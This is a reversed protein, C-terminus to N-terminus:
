EEIFKITIDRTMKVVRLIYITGGQRDEKKLFLAQSMMNGLDVRVGESKWRDENFEWAGLTPVEVRLRRFDGTMRYFLLEIEQGYPVEEYVKSVEYLDCNEVKFKKIAPNLFLTYTAEIYEADDIFSYNEPIIIKQNGISDDKSYTVLVHDLDYSELKEFVMARSVGPILDVYGDGIYCFDGELNQNPMMEKGKIIDLGTQVDVEPKLRLFKRAQTPVYPDQDYIKGDNGGIVATEGSIKYIKDMWDFYPIDLNTGPIRANIKAQCVAEDFRIILTPIDLALVKTWDSITYTRKWPTNKNSVYTSPIVEGSPTCFVACKGEDTTSYASYGPNCTVTIEVYDHPTRVTVVQIPNTKACNSNTVWIFSETRDDYTKYRCELKVQATYFDHTKSRLIWKNSLEPDNGKNCDSLSVYDVGHHEVIADLAYTVNPSYIEPLLEWNDGGPIPKNAEGTIDDRLCIWTKNEGEPTLAYLVRDGKKYVSNSNYLDGQIRRLKKQLLPSNEAPKTSLLYGSRRDFIYGTTEDIEIPDVKAKFEDNRLNWLYKNRNANDNETWSVYSLNISDVKDDENSIVLWVVKSQSVEDVLHSYELTPTYDEVRNTMLRMPDRDFYMGSPNNRLNSRPGLHIILSPTESPQRGTRASGLKNLFDIEYFNKGPDASATNIWTNNTEVVGPYLEITRVWKPVSFYYLLQNSVMLTGFYGAGNDENERILTPFMTKEFKGIDELKYGVLNKSYIDLEPVKFLNNYKAKELHQQFNYEAFDFDMITKNSGHYLVKQGKYQYGLTVMDDLMQQEAEPEMLDVHPFFLRDETGYFVATSLDSLGGQELGERKEIWM